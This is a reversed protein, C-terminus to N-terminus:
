ASARRAHVPELSGDDCPRGDRVSPNELQNWFSANPILAGDGAMIDSRFDWDGGSSRITAETLRYNLSGLMNIGLWGPLNEQPIRRTITFKDEMVWQDQNEGYPLQSNKFSDLSDYFLQNKFTFNPDVDNVLDFFVIGLSRTRSRRTARRAPLRGDSYGVTRPDLAFGVPLRGSIPVRAASARRACCARRIPCAASTGTAGGCQTVLYDYMTQPIGPVIPFQASRRVAARRPIWPGASTRARAARQRAILSGRVPSGLHTEHYGIQGDGNADLNVLPM